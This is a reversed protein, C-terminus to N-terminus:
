TPLTAASSSRWRWERGPKEPRPCPQSPPHISCLQLTKLHCAKVGCLRTCLVPLPTECVVSVLAHQVDEGEKLRGSVYVPVDLALSVTASLLRQLVEEALEEARTLQPAPQAELCRQLSALQM